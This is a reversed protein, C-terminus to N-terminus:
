ANATDYRTGPLSRLLKERGLHIRKKNCMLYILIFLIIMDLSFTFDFSGTNIPLAIVFLAISFLATVERTKSIRDYIRQLLAIQVAFVVGWLLPGIVGFDLWMQGILGPPIDLANSDVFSATSIRVIREPFGIDIGLFGDPVRRALSLLHDVGFRFPIDLYLLTAWSEIISIGLDATVRLFGSLGSSATNIGDFSDLRFEPIQSFYFLTGKGFMIVPVFILFVPFFKYFYFKGNILVFTFYILMVQIAFARRSVCMLGFVIVCFISFSVGFYRRRGQFLFFGVVSLISFTQTLSFWSARVFTRDIIGDYSRFLILAKYGTFGGGLSELLVWMGALGTSMIFCWRWPSVKILIGRAHNQNLDLRSRGKLVIWWVTYLVMVFLDSMVLVLAAEIVGIDVIVRDFLYVDTSVSSELLAIMATIITPPIMIQLAFIALFISLLDPGGKSIRIREVSLLAALSLMYGFSIILM